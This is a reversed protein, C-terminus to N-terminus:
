MSVYTIIANYNLNLKFKEEFPCYLIIYLLVNKHEYKIYM